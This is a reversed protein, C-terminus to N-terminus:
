GSEPSSHIGQTLLLSIGDPEVKRGKTIKRMIFVQQWTDTSLIIMSLRCRKKNKQSKASNGGEFPYRM